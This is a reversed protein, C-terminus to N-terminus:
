FFNFQFDTCVFASWFFFFDLFLFNFTQHLIIQFECMIKDSDIYEKFKTLILWAYAKFIKTGFIYKEMGNEM